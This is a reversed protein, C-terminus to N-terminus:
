SVDSHLTVISMLYDHDHQDFSALLLKDDVIDCAHALKRDRQGYQRFCIRGDCGVSLIISPSHLTKMACCDGYRWRDIALNKKFWWLLYPKIRRFCRSLM